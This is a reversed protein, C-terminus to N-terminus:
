SLVEPACAECFGAYATFAVLPRRRGCGRCRETQSLRVVDPVGLIPAAGVAAGAPHAPAPLPREAEAGLVEVTIRVTYETTMVSESYITFCDHCGPLRQVAQRAALTAM